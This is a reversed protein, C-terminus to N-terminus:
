KPSAYSILFMLYHRCHTIISGLSFLTHVTRSAHSMRDSTSADFSPYFMILRIFAHSFQRPPGQRTHLGQTPIGCRTSPKTKTKLCSALSSTKQSGNKMLYFAKRDQLPLVKDGIIEFHGYPQASPPFYGMDSKDDKTRYHVLFGRDDHWMFRPQHEDTRLIKDHKDVWSNQKSSRTDFEDGSASYSFSVKEDLLHTGIDDNEIKPWKLDGNKSLYLVV